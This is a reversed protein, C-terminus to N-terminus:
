FKECEHRCNAKGHAHSIHLPEFCVNSFIKLERLDITKDYSNDTEGDPLNQLM